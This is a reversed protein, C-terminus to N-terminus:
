TLNSKGINCVSCLTQLNELITEGGKSWPHIHDIHLEVGPTTAPAKGCIVCKFGDRKMVLFRLRWNPDRKTKQKPTIEDRQEALPVQVFELSDSSIDSNNSENIYEIFKELASNWSGFRNEYTSASYKSLLKTMEKYRPQRGFKIWMEYINQFLDIETINLNINLDLNAAKLAKNWSEFRRRLTTVGYKGIEKYDRATVTTKNLYKAVRKLDALLDENSIIKNFKELKFDM